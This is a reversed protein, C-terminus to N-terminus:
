IIHYILFCIEKLYTQHFRQDRSINDLFIDLHFFKYHFMIKPTIIYIILRFSM